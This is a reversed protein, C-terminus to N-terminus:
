GFLGDASYGHLAATTRRCSRGSRNLYVDAEIDIEEPLPIEQGQIIAFTVVAEVYEKLASQTYGAYFLDQHEALDTKLQNVLNHAQEIHVSAKRSKWVTSLASRRPLM